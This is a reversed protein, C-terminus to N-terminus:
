VNFDEYYERPEFPIAEIRPGRAMVSLQVASIKPAGTVIEVKASVGKGTHTVPMWFTRPSSAAAITQSIVEAFDGDYNPLYFRVRGVGEYDFLIGHITFLWNRQPGQEFPFSWYPSLAIGMYTEHDKTEKGLAPTGAQIGLYWLDGSADEIPALDGWVTSEYDAWTGGMSGWTQVAQQTPFLVASRAVISSRYWRQYEMDLIFTGTPTFLSYRRTLPNYVASYEDLKSKDLPLLMENIPKSIMEAGNGDFLQVGTDSLFVVGLHTNRATQENICGVGAVRPQFDAPRTVDGTFRGIWISKRMLIAMLNLGMSRLAVVRDGEAVNDLLLEFSAGQSTWDNLDGNPSNWAIGLPEYNGDIYAGGIFLRGAFTAISVGQPAQDLDEVTASGPERKKVSGARNLFVFAEGYNTWTFRRGGILGIDTWVTAGIGKVGIYPPDFMVLESTLSLSPHLALQVPDHGGLVEETVAGPLRALENAPTVQMDLMDYSANPPTLERATQANFGGSFDNYTKIGHMPVERLFAGNGWDGRGKQRGLKDGHTAM